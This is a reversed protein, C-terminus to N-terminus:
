PFNSRGIRWKNLLFEDHYELEKYKLQIEQEDNFKTSRPHVYTDHCDCVCEEVCKMRFCDACLNRPLKMMNQM